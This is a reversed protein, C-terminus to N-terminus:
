KIELVFPTIVIETSGNDTLAGYFEITKGELSEIDITSFLNSSLNVHIATALEAYVVQNKFDDFKIMPMCDRISTGKFVPGIQIKFIESGSYGDVAIIAYGVRKETNVETVTATGKVLFNYANGEDARIGYKDGVSKLDGGAALFIEPLDISNEKLVPVVDSQFISDIYDQPDFNDSNVDINGETPGSDIPVVTVNTALVLIFVAAAALAIVIRKNM